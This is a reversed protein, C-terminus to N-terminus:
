DRERGAEDFARALDAVAAVALELEDRRRRGFARSIAAGLAGFERAARRHAQRTLTADRRRRDSASTRREVLGAEQLRDLMATVSGSSLGLRRGLEGPSVPGDEMANIARVATPDVGLAAACRADFRDMAAYLQRVQQLLQELPEGIPEAM